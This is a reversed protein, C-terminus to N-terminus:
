CIENTFVGSQTNKKKKKFTRVPKLTQPSAEGFFDSGGFDDGWDDDTQDGWDDLSKIQPINQKPAAKQQHSRSTGSAQSSSTATVKPDPKSPSRRTKTPTVPQIPKTDLDFDDEWDDESPPRKQKQISYVKSKPAPSSLPSRVGLDLLTNSKAM